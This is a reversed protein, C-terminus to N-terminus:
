PRVQSGTFEAVAEAAAIAAGEDYFKKSSLWVCDGGASVHRIRFHPAGDHDRSPVVFVNGGLGHIDSPYIPRRRVTM